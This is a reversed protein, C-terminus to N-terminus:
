TFFLCVSVKMSKFGAVPIRNSGTFFVTPYFFGLCVCLCVCVHNRCM